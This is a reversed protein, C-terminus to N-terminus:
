RRDPAEGITGGRGLPKLRAEQRAKAEEYREIEQQAVLMAEELFDRWEEERLLPKIVELLRWAIAFVADHTLRTM